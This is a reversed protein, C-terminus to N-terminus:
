NNRLPSASVAKILVKNNQRRDVADQEEPSAGAIPGESKRGRGWEEGDKIFM